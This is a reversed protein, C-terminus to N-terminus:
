QQVSLAALHDRHDEVFGAYWVQEPTWDGSVVNPDILRRSARAHGNNSVVVISIDFLSTM